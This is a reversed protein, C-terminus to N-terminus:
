EKKEIVARGVKNVQRLVEGGVEGVRDHVQDVSAKVQDVSGQISELREILGSLDVQINNVPEVQNEPRSLYENVIRTLLTARKIDLSKARETLKNAQPDSLRFPIISSM